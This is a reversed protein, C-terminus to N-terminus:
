KFEVGARRLYIKIDSGIQPDEQLAKFRLAVKPDGLHWALASVTRQRVMASPDELFKLFFNVLSKDELNGLAWITKARVFENSDSAAEMLDSKAAKYKIFALCTAAVERDNPDSAKLKKLCSFGYKQDQESIKFPFNQFLISHRADDRTKSDSSDWQKLKEELWLNQYSDQLYHKAEEAFAPFSFLLCVILFQLISFPTCALTKNKMYQNEPLNLSSTLIM